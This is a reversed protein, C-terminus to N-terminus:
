DGDRDERYARCRGEAAIGPPGAPIAASVRCRQRHGRSAHCRGTKAQESLNQRLEPFFMALNELLFFYREVDEGSEIPHQSLSRAIAPIPSAGPIVAGYDLTRYVSAETANGLDWHIALLTLYDDQSLAEYWIGELERQVGRAYQAEERRSGAYLTPLRDLRLGLALRQEVSRQLVQRTHDVLTENLQTLALLSDAVRPVRRTSSVSACAALVLAVVGAPTLRSFNRLLRRM